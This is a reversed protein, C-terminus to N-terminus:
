LNLARHARENGAWLEMCGFPRKTTVTCNPPPEVKKVIGAVTGLSNCRGCECGAGKRERHEACDCIACSHVALEAHDGRDDRWVGDDGGFHAGSTGCGYGASATGRGSYVGAVDDSDAAAPYACVRDGGRDNGDRPKAVTGRVRRDSDC